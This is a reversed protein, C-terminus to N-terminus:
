LDYSVAKELIITPVKCFRKAFSAKWVTPCNKWEWHMCDINGLMGPFDHENRAALLRDVDAQTPNRLYEVGFGAIVGKAFKKL